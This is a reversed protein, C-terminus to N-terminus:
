AAPKIKQTCFYTLGNMERMSVIQLSSEELLRSVTRKTLYHNTKADIFSYMRNIFPIRSEIGNEYAEAKESNHRPLNSYKYSFGNQTQNDTFCGVFRSNEDLVQSINRLFDRVERVHNLQKLNIITKVGRIDEADYFFHRTSPIVLVHSECALNMQDLYSVLDERVDVKLEELLLNLKRKRDSIKMQCASNYNQDNIFNSNYGVTENDM